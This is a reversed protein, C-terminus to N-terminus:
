ALPLEAREGTPQLRQARQAMEMRRLLEARAYRDLRPSPGFGREAVRYIEQLERIAGALLLLGELAHPQRFQRPDVGHASLHRNFGAESPLDESRMIAVRIAEQVATRRFAWLGAANAPEREFASRASGFGDFGFHGEVVDSLITATLSQAAKALGAQQAVLAERAAAVTAELKPHVAEMLARDVSDLIQEANALLVRDRGEKGEALVIAEVVEAPPVWVLCIGSEAMVKQAREHMGIQLPWWNRPIFAEMFSQFLDVPAGGEEPCELQEEM